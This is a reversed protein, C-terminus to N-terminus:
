LEGQRSRNIAKAIDIVGDHTAKMMADQAGLRTLITARVARAQEEAELLDLLQPSIHNQVRDALGTVQQGNAAIMEALSHLFIQQAAFMVRVFAAREPDNAEDYAVLDAVAQQYRQQATEPM